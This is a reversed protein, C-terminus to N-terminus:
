LVQKWGGYETERKHSFFHKEVMMGLDRLGMNVIRETV